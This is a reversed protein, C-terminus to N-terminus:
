ESKTSTDVHKKADEILRWIADLTELSLTPQHKRFEDQIKNHAVRRSNDLVYQEIDVVVHRSIYDSVEQLTEISFKNRQDTVTFYKRGISEIVGDTTQRGVVLVKQGVHLNM